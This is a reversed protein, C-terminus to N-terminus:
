RAGPPTCRSGPRRRGPRAPPGAARARIIRNGGAGTSKAAGAGVAPRSARRRTGRQDAALERVELDQAALPQRRERVPVPQPEPRDRRRPPDQEVARPERQDVVPRGERQHHHRAIDRVEAGEDLPQRPEELHGLAVEPVAQRADRRVRRPRDPERAPERELLDGADLLPPEIQGPHRDVDLGLARVRPDPERGMEQAVDALGRVGVEPPAAHAAAVEDALRPELPEVVLVEPAPVPALLDLDVGVPPQDADEVPVLRHGAGVHPRRDVPPDLLRGLVGQARM